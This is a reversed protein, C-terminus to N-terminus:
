IENLRDFIIKNEKLLKAVVKNLIEEREKTMRRDRGDEDKKITNM